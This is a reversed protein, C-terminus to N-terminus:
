IKKIMLSKDQALSVIGKNTEIEGHKEAAKYVSGIHKSMSMIFDIDQGSYGASDYITQFLIAASQIEDQKQKEEMSPKAPSSIGAAKLDQKGKYIAASILSIIALLEM